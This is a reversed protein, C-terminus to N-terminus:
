APAPTYASSTIVTRGCSQAGRGEGAPTPTAIERDVPASVPRQGSVCFENSLGSDRHKM